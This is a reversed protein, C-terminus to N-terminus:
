PFDLLQPLNQPSASHSTRAAVMKALLWLDKQGYWGGCFRACREGTADINLTGTKTLSRKVKLVTAVLTDLRLHQM